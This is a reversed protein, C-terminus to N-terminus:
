LCGSMLFINSASFFFQTIVKEFPLVFANADPSFLFQENMLCQLGITIGTTILPKLAKISYPNAIFLFLIASLRRKSLEM